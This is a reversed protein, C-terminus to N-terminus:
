NNPRVETKLSGEVINVIYAMDQTSWNLQLGADSMLNQIIRDVIRAEGQKRYNERVAEGPYNMM